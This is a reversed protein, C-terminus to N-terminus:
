EKWHTVETFQEEGDDIEWQPGVTGKGLYKAKGKTLHQFVGFRWVEGKYKTVQGKWPLRKEVPIWSM